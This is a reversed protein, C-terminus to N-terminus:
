RNGLSSISRKRNAMRWCNSSMLVYTSSTTARRIPRRSTRRHGSRDVVRVTSQPREQGASLGSGSQGVSAGVVRVLITLAALRRKM